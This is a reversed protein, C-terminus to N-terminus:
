HTGGPMRGAVVFVTREGPAGRTYAVRFGGGTYDYVVRRLREAFAAAASPPRRAFEAPLALAWESPYTTRVMCLMHAAHSPARLVDSAATVARMTAAVPVCAANQSHQAAHAPSRAGAHATYVHSLRNARSSASTVRHPRSIAAAARSQPVHQYKINKNFQTIIYLWEM